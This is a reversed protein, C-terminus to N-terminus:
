VTANRVLLDALVADFDPHALALPAVPVVFRPPNPPQADAAPRWPPSSAPRPELDEPAALVDADALLGHGLGRLLVLQEGFRDGHRTADGAEDLALAEPLLYYDVAALSPSIAFRHWVLCAQVRAFRTEARAAFPVARPDNPLDVFLLVDLEAAVLAAAARRFDVPLAVHEEFVTM